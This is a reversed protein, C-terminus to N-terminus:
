ACGPNEPCLENEAVLPDGGDATVAVPAPRVRWASAPEPTLVPQAEPRSLRPWRVSPAFAGVYVGLIVLPGGLLYAATVQENDLAAGLFVTVLPIILMVYSSASASWRAIVYLFLSFVVISGILSVYGVAIWTESRTPIALHEGAVLTAALLLLCGVGMAVANTSLPHSRPFMKIVVNSEAMCAAGAIIALMSIAPVSARIQDGFVVSIGALAILSGLLVQWRFRELRQAVAFVFTLLPVLALIIQGLGAGAKVLGFYLFGFAAGFALAGYLASGLLARGRPIAIRRLGVIGFLVASALAFRLTAGWLPALEHNSFRVAVANGGALLSCAVFAILTTRDRM